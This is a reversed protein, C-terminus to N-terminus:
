LDGFIRNVLEEQQILNFPDFRSTDINQVELSTQEVLFEYSKAMAEINAIIKASKTRKSGAIREKVVSIPAYVYIIKANGFLKQEMLQWYFEHDFTGRIVQGYVCESWTFRNIIVDIKTQAFVNLTEWALGKQFDSKSKLLHIYEQNQEEDHVNSGDFIPIAKRGMRKRASQLATILTDKGSHDVGEFIYMM